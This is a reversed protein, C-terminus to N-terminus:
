KTKPLAPKDPEPIKPQPDAVKGAKDQVVSGGVVQKDKVALAFAGGSIFVVFNSFGVIAVQWKQPLWNILEPKFSIAGTVLTLLGTLSTRWNAGFIKGMLDGIM